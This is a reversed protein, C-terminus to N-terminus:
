RGNDSKVRWTLRLMPRIRSRCTRAAANMVGWSRKGSRNNTFQKFIVKADKGYLHEGAAQPVLRYFAIYAPMLSFYVISRLTASFLMRAVGADMDITLGFAQPLVITILALEVGLRSADDDHHRIALPVPQGPNDRKWAIMNVVM